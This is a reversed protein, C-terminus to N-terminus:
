LHARGSLAQAVRQAAPSNDPVGLNGQAIAAPLHTSGFQVPQSPSTSTAQGAAVGTQAAIASTGATSSQDTPPPNSAALGAMLTQNIQILQELSNVSVLQNIYQNPDTASTPDQNQMETVLLTLFDNGSITAPDSGTSSDMPRASLASTNQAATNNWVTPATTM